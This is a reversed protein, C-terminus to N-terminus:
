LVDNCGPRGHGYTCGPLDYFCATVIFCQLTFLNASELPRSAMILSLLNDLGYISIPRMLETIVTNLSLLNDLSNLGNNASCGTCRNAITARSVAM